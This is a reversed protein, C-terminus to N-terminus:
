TKTMNIWSDEDLITVGLAEAKRAKSGADAGIVVYDTKASVSGAVKAGLLEAKAKAEARSMSTLTGTFVVTKGTVPSDSAIAEPPIPHVVDLLRKIADQNHSDSFFRVIDHAVSDGIQDIGTLIQWAESMQDQAAEATTILHDLTGFHRALLLSTAQGIQRIGLGYILRELPINRRQEIASLLNKVSLEGWGDRGSLTDRYQGLHFIDAPENLMGDQHLEEIIRAGLGEIDFADRSVFHKLRELLQAPCSLQGTCRRVAEGDPRIAPSGCSPCRDPFVFPTEDGNRAHVDVSLVQPIVDGARQIQVLDGIRIDKDKIYDENHLTANSVVVGGVTVPTLRAVPTLAGTRGVQIDIDTIHTQAKEAPFKHAIAWRPSRSVQGLRNQFDLQDVKYVVGDIDYDLDARISSIYQYHELASAMNPTIASHPNIVFGWTKLLNLYEHHSSVTWASMEGAAYAFFRLARKATITPDKQRLSGAAANRPNAFIKGNAKQQNENLAFFDAKTMFIEGRIEAVSLTCHTLHEPIDSITRINATVDEGEIGDGRTVGAVLQGNEYRLSISLGDIKPEVSYAIDQEAPLNLFRKVRQDFDMADNDDFANSLSLMPMHHRYKGFQTSPTAGVTLSPSDLRILHPFAAEIDMNRRMLADFAADSIEPADDRHYKQNHYTIALALRDLENIADTETLDTVAIHETEM